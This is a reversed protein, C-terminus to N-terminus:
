YYLPDLFRRYANASFHYAADPLSKEYQHAHFVTICFCIHFPQGLLGHAHSDEIVLANSATDCNVSVAEVLFPLLGEYM